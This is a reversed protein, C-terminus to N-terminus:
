TRAKWRRDRAVLAGVSRTVEQLPDGAADGIIPRATFGDNKSWSWEVRRIWDTILLDGIRIQVADGVEYGDRWRFGEAERLSLSVTYSAAGEDMSEQARKALTATDAADRADRFKEKAVGWASERGPSTLAYFQRDAKEGQGGALVRTVKPETIRVVGKEILGSAETIVFGVSGRPVVDVLYGDHGATPGVTIVMGAKDADPYLLDALNDSRVQASYSPGRGQSAVVTVPEGLRAAADAIIGKAATEFPKAGGRTDYDNAFTGVTGSAITKTPEPYGTLRDLLDDFGVAKVTVQGTARPLDIVYEPVRLAQVFAGDDFLELRTGPSSLEQAYPTDNDVAFTLSSVGNCVSVGSASTLSEVAGVRRWAVDYVVLRLTM